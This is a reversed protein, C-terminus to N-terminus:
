GDQVTYTRSVPGEIDLIPKVGCAHNPHLLKMVPLNPGPHESVDSGEM